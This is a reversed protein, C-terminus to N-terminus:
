REREVLGKINRVTRTSGDQIAMRILKEFPRMYLEVRTLQFTFRLECQADGCPAFEYRIIFSANGEGQFSVRQCPELQTVRFITESRRGQDIRVQRGRTGMAVRAPGLPQLLEVEPSWRPYNDFFCVVVFDYVTDVSRRVTTSARGEIM